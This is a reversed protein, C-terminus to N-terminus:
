SEVAERESPLLSDGEWTPMEKEFLWTVFCSGVDSLSKGTIDRYITGAVMRLHEDNEIDLYKSPHEKCVVAGVRDITYWCSGVYSMNYRGDENNSTM